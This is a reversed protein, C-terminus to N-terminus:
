RNESDESRKDENCYDPEESDDNERNKLRREGNTITLDDRDHEHGKEKGTM